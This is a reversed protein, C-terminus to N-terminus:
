SARAFAGFAQLRQAVFDATAADTITATEVALKSRIQSIQVEPRALIRCDLAHLVNRLPAHARAGGLLGPSATFITVPKGQMPGPTLRSLWDLANQLVGPISWNYEPSVIIVGDVSGIAEVLRTLAPPAGDSDLIDQNFLPLAGITPLDEIQVGTPALAQLGRALARNFSARRLSGVLTGLRIQRDTQQM